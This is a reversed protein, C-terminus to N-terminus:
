RVRQRVVLPERLRVSVTSGAALRVEEGRTALVVGTGAGAGITGGVVAGKKGGAIAGIVAGAGAGIGVKAADKGKTAQAERAIADTAIRLEEEELTVSTFRIALRARGKVRGSPLAEIVSGGILTGAPLVETGDVAVARRLTGRVADEVASTDSALASTLEVSLTTGAPVTLERYEPVAPAVPVASPPPASVPPAAAPVAAPAPPAPPAAAVPPAATTRRPAPSTAAPTAPAAPAPAPSSTADAVAAPAAAPAPTAAPAAPAVAGTTSGAPPTAPTSGVCGATVVVVLSVGTLSVRM